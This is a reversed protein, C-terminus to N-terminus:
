GHDDDALADLSKGVLREMVLYPLGETTYGDDLIRVVGPHQVRNAAYGEQFFRTRTAEDKAVDAKLVKLAVKAGNRVHTAAYVFGMGGEGLLAEIQWKGDLLSGRALTM